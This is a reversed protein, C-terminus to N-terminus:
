EGFWVQLFPQICCHLMELQHEAEFAFFGAEQFHALVQVPVGFAETACGADPLFYVFGVVEGSKCSNSSKPAPLTSEPIYKM